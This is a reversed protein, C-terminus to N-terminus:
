RYKEYIEKANILGILYIKKTLNRNEKITILEKESFLEKNEELREIFIEEIINKEM